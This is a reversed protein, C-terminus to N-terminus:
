PQVAMRMPARPMPASRPTSSPDTDCPTSCRAASGTVRTLCSASLSRQDGASAKTAARRRDGAGGRGPHPRFRRQHLGRRLLLEVRRPISATPQTACRVIRAPYGRRALAAARFCEVREFYSVSGLSTFGLFGPVLFVPGKSM